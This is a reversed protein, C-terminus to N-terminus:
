TGDSLQFIELLDQMKNVKKSKITAAVILDRIERQTNQSREDELVRHIPASNGMINNNHWLPYHDHSQTTISEDYQLFKKVFGIKQHQVALHLLGSTDSKFISENKNWVEELNLQIIKEVVKEDTRSQQDAAKIMTNIVEVQKEYRERSLADENADEDTDQNTIEDMHDLPQIALLIYDTTAFKNRLGTQQLFVEVVNGRGKELAEKFTTDPMDAIGTNYGLLAHLGGLDGAEAIAALSLATKETKPDPDNLKLIQLLIDPQFQRGEHIMHKIAKGNGNGAARHLPTSKFDGKESRSHVKDFHCKRVLLKREPHPFSKPFTHHTYLNIFSLHPSIEIIIRIIIICINREETIIEKAAETQAAAFGIDETGLQCDQVAKDLVLWRICDDIEHMRNEDKLFNKIESIFRLLEKHGVAAELATRIFKFLDHAQDHLRIKSAQKDTRRKKWEKVITHDISQINSSEKSDVTPKISDTISALETRTQSSQIDSSLFM